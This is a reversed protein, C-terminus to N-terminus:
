ADEMNDYDGQVLMPLLVRVQMVGETSAPEPMGDYINTSSSAGNGLVKGGSSWSEIAGLGACNM